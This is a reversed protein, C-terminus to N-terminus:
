RQMEQRVKPDGLADLAAIDDHLKPHRSEANDTVPLPMGMIHEALGAAWGGAPKPVSVVTIGPQPEPEPPATIQPAPTAGNTKAPQWDPNGSGAPNNADNTKSM